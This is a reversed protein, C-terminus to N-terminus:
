TLVHTLLNNNLHNAHVYSQTPYNMFNTFLQFNLKSIWVFAFSSWGFTSFTRNVLITRRKWSFDQWRSTPQFNVCTPPSQIHQPNSEVNDVIKTLMQFFWISNFFYYNSTVNEVEFHLQFTNFGYNFVKIKIKTDCVWFCFCHTILNWEQKDHLRWKQFSYDWIRFTVFTLYCGYRECIFCFNALVM